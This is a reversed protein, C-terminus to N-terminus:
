ETQGEIPPHPNIPPSSDAQTSLGIWEAVVKGDQVLWITNPPMADLSWVEMGAYTM